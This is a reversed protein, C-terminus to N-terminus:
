KLAEMIKKMALERSNLHKFKNINEPEILERSKVISDVDIQNMNLGNIFLKVSEKYNKVFVPFSKSRSQSILFYSGTLDRAHKITPHSFIKLATPHSQECAERFAMEPSKLAYDEPSPKCMDLFQGPSPVFPSSLLRFKDLGRKISEVETINAQKFAKMWERKANDFESETPWAQKFAPFIAQFSVFLKNVLKVDFETFVPNPDAFPENYGHLRKSNMENLIDNIPKM